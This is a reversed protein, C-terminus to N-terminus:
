RGVSDFLLILQDFSTNIENFVPLMVVLFMVLAVLWPLNKILNM